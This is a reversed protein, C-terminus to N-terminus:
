QADGIMRLLAALRAQGLAPGLSDVDPGLRANSVAKGIDLVRSAEETFRNPLRGATALGLVADNYNKTAVDAADQVATSSAAPDRGLLDEMQKRLSVQKLKEEKIYELQSLANLEDVTKPSRTAASEARRAVAQLGKRIEEPTGRTVPVGLIAGRVEHVGRALKNNGIMNPEQSLIFSSVNNAVDNVPRKYSKPLRTAGARKGAVGLQRDALSALRKRMAPTAKLISRVADDGFEAAARAVDDAYPSLSDIIKTFNSM